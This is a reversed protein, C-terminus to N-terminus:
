QSFFIEIPFLANKAPFNAYFNLHADRMGRRQAIEEGQRSRTM